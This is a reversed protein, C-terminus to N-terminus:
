KRKSNLFEELGEPEKPQYWQGRCCFPTISAVVVALSCIKTAVSIMAKSMKKKM